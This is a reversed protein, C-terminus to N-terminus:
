LKRRDEEHSNPEIGSWLKRDIRGVVWLRMLSTTKETLLRMWVPAHDHRLPALVCCLMGVSSVHSRHQRFLCLVATRLLALALRGLAERRPREQGQDAARSREARTRVALHGGHVSDPKVIHFHWRMPVRCPEVHRRLRLHSRLGTSGVAVGVLWSPLLPTHM